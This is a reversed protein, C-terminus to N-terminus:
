FITMNKACKGYSSEPFLIGLLVTLEARTQPSVWTIIWNKDDVLGRSNLSCLSLLPMTVTGIFYVEISLLLGCGLWKSDSNQGIPVLPLSHSPILACIKRGVPEVRTQSTCTKGRFFEIKKLAKCWKGIAEAHKDPTHSSAPIVTISSRSIKWEWWNNVHQKRKKISFRRRASSM